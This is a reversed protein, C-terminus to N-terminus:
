AGDGPPGLSTLRLAVYAAAMGVADTFLDRIDDFEIPRQKYLLQFFEQGLAALLLLGFFRLPRTRLSPFLALLVVGLLFFIAAHGVAHAEASGLWEGMLRGFPAYVEGLWGFPFLILAVLIFLLWPHFLKKRIALTKLANMM